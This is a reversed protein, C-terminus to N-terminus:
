THPRRSRWSHPVDLLGKGSGRVVLETAPAHLDLVREWQNAYVGAELLYRGPALDLRDFRLAVTGTQPLEGVAVGDDHTSVDVLKPLEPEDRRQLSVAFLPDVVAANVRYDLEVHVAAGPLISGTARGSADLLRVSTLEVDRTGMRLGQETTVPQLGETMMGRYQEVVRVTDGLGRATGQHLWLVRSCLRRVQELDHSAVVITTGQQQLEHLREFCKEQFRLDGVAIVEDVLLVDPELMIASAFALRLRMGSSYTRVPDNFAEGLEAFEAVAPLRQRAERRDLGALMGLTVANEEGTLLEALGDGLTLLAGIRGRTTVSGSTPPTLGALLRLLTSKGSGNQGVLGITEGSEVTLDVRSVATQETRRQWHGLDRLRVGGRGSPARRYRKTVDDAVVPPRETDPRDAM